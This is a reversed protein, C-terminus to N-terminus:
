ENRQSYLRWGYIAGLIVVLGIFFPWDFECHGAIALVLGIVCEVAFFITRIKKNDIALIWTIGLILFPIFFWHWLCFAENNMREWFLALGSKNSQPAPTVTPQSDKVPMVSAFAYVGPQDVSVTMVGNYNDSDKLLEAEGGNVSILSYDATDIQMEKPIDLLFELKSNFQKVKKWKGNKNKKKVNISIYDGQSFGKEKASFTEVADDMATVTDSDVESLDMKHIIIKIEKNDGEFLEQQEEATLCAEFLNKSSLIGSNAMSSTVAGASAVDETAVTDETDMGDTPEASEEPQETVTDADDGSTSDDKELTVFLCGQGYSFYKSDLIDEDPFESSSADVSAADTVEPTDTVDETNSTSVVPLRLNTIAHATTLQMGGLGLGMMTLIATAFYKTKKNKKNTM